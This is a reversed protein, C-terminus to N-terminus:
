GGWPSRGAMDYLVRAARANCHADTGSVSPPFSPCVRALLDDHGVLQFLGVASGGRARPDCRSERYAVSLAWGQQGTGWFASVIDDAVPTGWCSASAPASRTQPMGCGALLAGGGIVLALLVTRTRRM